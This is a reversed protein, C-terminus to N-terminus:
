RLNAAEVALCRSGIRIIPATVASVTSWVRFDNPHILAPAM